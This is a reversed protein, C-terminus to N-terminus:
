AVTFAFLGTHAGSYLRGAVVIPASYVPYGPAYSWLQAGTTANFAFLFKASSPGCDCAANIYVVGNAVGAPSFLNGLQAASKWVQKGTRANLAYLYNDGGGVYVMGYAVAASTNAVSGVFATWLLHGSAANYAYVRGTFDSEYVVGDAVTPAAEGITTTVTKKWVQKGTTDNLAFIGNGAATYLMGGAISVGTTNTAMQSNGLSSKWAIAGTAQHIAYLYGDQSTIYVLSGDIAPAPQVVNGTTVHWLAAGTTANFAYLTNGMAAFVRDHAVAPTTPGFPSPQTINASWIAAGTTPNIAYLRIDPSDSTIYIMGGALVPSSSIFGASTFHWAIHLRGVNGIGLTRELPNCRQGESNYGLQPWDATTPTHSVASTSPPAVCLSRSAASPSSATQASASATSRAAMSRALVFGGVGVALVILGIGLVGFFRRMREKM